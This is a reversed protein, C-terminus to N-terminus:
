APRQGALREAYLKWLHHRQAFPDACRAACVRLIKRVVSDDAKAKDRLDIWDGMSGREITDDIAACSPTASEDLHRHIM